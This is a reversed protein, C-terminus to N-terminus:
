NSSRRSRPSSRATDFDLGHGAHIELGIWRRTRRRRRLRAVEPRANEGRARKAYAGTHLEVVPAALARGGGHDGTRSSSSRSASAAETLEEVGAAPRARGAWCRPRGGHHAGASRPFSAVAHPPLAIGVMEPTAAMEFNLPRFLQRKLREIDDDRIHRRDERLHATIGDAGAFIALQAARFPDPYLRGPRKAGDGCSRHQRRPAAPSSDHIRKLELLAATSGGAPPECSRSAGRQPRTPPLRTSVIARFRRDPDIRGVSADCSGPSRPRPFSPPKAARSCM